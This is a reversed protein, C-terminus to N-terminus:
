LDDFSRGLDLVCQWLSKSSWLGFAWQGRWCDDLGFVQVSFCLVDFFRGLDFLFQWLSESCLNFEM